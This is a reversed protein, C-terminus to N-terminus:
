KEGMKKSLAIFSVKYLLTFLEEEVETLADPDLIDNKRLVDEIENIVRDNMEDALQGLVYKGEVEIIKKLENLKM